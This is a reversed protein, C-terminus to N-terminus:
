LIPHLYGSTKYLQEYRRTEIGMCWNFILVKENTHFPKFMAKNRDQSNRM